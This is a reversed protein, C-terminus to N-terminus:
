SRYNEKKKRNRSATLSKDGEKPQNPSDQVLTTHVHVYTRKSLIHFLFFLLLFDTGKRGYKEKRKWKEQGEEESQTVSPSVSRVLCEHTRSHPVRTLLYTRTDHPPCVTEERERGGQSIGPRPDHGDKKRAPQSITSITRNLKLNNKEAWLLLCSFPCGQRPPKTTM